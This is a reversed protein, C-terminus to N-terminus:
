DSMGLNKLCKYHKQKNVGKTLFDAPMEETNMYSLTIKGDEVQERIFHYKVDVHKIRNHFVTNEAIRIASQNDSYLNISSEEKNLIEALLRQLYIAEKSTESLAVYESETSSHCVSKQKRSMWSIPSNAYVFAYGTFSHRDLNNAYDADSYGELQKNTKKYCLSYDITGKLYRLVRKAIKWHVDTHDNNFQSLYSTIYAIDPRSKVSLYMLMGILSQYPINTLKQGQSKLLSIDVPTSVPKCNEMGFRKLIEYIYHKQDIRIENTNKNRTFNLGIAQKIEGL